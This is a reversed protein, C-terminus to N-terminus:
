HFFSVQQNFMAYTFMITVTIVSFIICTACMKEMLEFTLCKGGISWTSKQTWIMNNKNIMVTVHMIDGFKMAIQHNTGAILSM